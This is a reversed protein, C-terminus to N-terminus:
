RTAEQARLEEVPLIRAPSSAAPLSRRRSREDTVPRTRRLADVGAYERARRRAPVEVHAHLALPADGLKDLNENALHV